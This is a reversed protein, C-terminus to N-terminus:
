RIILLVILHAHRALVMAIAVGAPGFSTLVVGFFAVATMTLSALREFFAARFSNLTTNRPRISMRQPGRYLFLLVPGQISSVRMFLGTPHSSLFTRLFGSRRLPRSSLQLPPVWRAVVLTGM